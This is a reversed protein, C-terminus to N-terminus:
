DLRVTHGLIASENAALTVELTVAAESYSCLVLDQNKQRIAEIFTQAQLLYFDDQSTLTVDQENDVIHLTMGDIKLYFDEGYFEVTNSGVYKALCTSTINGVTGSKLVFSVTGVDYATAQPDAKHISRQEHIAHVEQFDGALYRILDLQHTSQEVLQGGSLEIKNWWTLPPIGGLRRAMILDIQKTELYGKARQVIDLYRLCYGSSHIIGSELIVKERRRVSTLELGLPKEALLHIGKSAALEEISNDRTFPPTCIYLADVQKSDLMQEVSEYSLAGYKNAIEKSRSQNLDYISTVKAHSINQIKKIHHEAMEGVGVFGINVIM